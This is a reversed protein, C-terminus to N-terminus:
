IMDYDDGGFGRDDLQFQFKGEDSGKSQALIREIDDDLCGEQPALRKVEIQEVQEFGSGLCSLYNNKEDEFIQIVNQNEVGKEYNEVGKGEEGSLEEFSDLVVRSRTRAGQIEDIQNQENEYIFERENERGNAQIPTRFGDSTERRQLDEDDIGFGANHVFSQGRPPAEDSLSMESISMEQNESRFEVEPRTNNVSRSRANRIAQKTPSVSSIPISFQKQLSNEFTNEAAFASNQGIKPSRATGSKLLDDQVIILRCERVQQILENVRKRLRKNDRNLTQIQLELVVKREKESCKELQFQANERKQREIERDKQEIKTVLLGIQAAQRKIEANLSDTALSSSNVQQNTDTRINRGQVNLRAISYNIQDNQTLQNQNDSLPIAVARRQWEGLQDQLELIADQLNERQREGQLAEQERLRLRLALSDVQQLGNRIQNTLQNQAMEARGLAAKLALNEQAQFTPRESLANTQEAALLILQEAHRLQQKLAHNEQIADM